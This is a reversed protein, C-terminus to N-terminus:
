YDMVGKEANGIAVIRECFNKLKSIADMDLIDMDPFESEEDAFPSYEVYYTVKWEDSSMFILAVYSGYSVVFEDGDIYAKFSKVEDLLEFLKLMDM